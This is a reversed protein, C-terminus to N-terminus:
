INLVYHEINKNHRNFFLHFVQLLSVMHLMIKILIHKGYIPNSEHKPFKQGKEHFNENM